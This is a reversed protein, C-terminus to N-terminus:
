MNTMKKFASAGDADTNGMNNSLRGASVGANGIKTAIVKLIAVLDDISQALSVSSQGRYQGESRIKNAIDIYSNIDKGLEESNGTLAQFTQRLDEHSTRILSDDRM